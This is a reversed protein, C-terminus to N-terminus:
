LFHFFFFVFCFIIHIAKNLLNRIWEFICHRSMPKTKEDIKEKSFDFQNGPTYFVESYGKLCEEKFHVYIPGFRQKGEETKKDTWSMTGYSKVVLTDNKDIAKGCKGQCKSVPKLLNKRFHLEYEKENRPDQFSIISTTAINSNSEEVRDIVMDPKCDNRKRKQQNPKRGSLVILVDISFLATVTLSYFLPNFNKSVYRLTNYILRSKCM